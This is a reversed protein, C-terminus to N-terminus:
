LPQQIQPVSAPLREPLLLPTLTSGAAVALQQQQLVEPKGQKSLWPCRSRSSRRVARARWRRRHSAGPTWLERHALSAPGLTALLPQQRQKGAQAPGWHCFVRLQWLRM